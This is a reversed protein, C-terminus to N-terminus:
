SKKTERSEVKRGRREKREKREERLRDTLSSCSCIEWVRKHLLLSPNAEEVGVVQRTEKLKCVSNTKTKEKNKTECEFLTNRLQRRLKKDQCSKKKSESVLVVQGVVLRAEQRQRTLKRTKKKLNKKHNM